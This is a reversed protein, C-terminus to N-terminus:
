NRSGPRVEESSPQLNEEEAIKQLVLEEKM